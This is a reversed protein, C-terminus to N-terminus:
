YIKILLLGLVCFIIGLYQSISIKENFLFKGFFVLFISVIVTVTLAYNSLKSGTRFAYLYGFEICLTGIGLLIISWHINELINNITFKLNTALLLIIFCLFFAILYTCALSAFPHIESPILKQSLQYILGGIVTITLPFWNFEM